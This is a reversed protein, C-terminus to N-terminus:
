VTPAARTSTLNGNSPMAQLALGWGVWSAAPLGVLFSHFMSASASLYLGGCSGRVDERQISSALHPSLPAFISCRTDGGRLRGDGELFVENDGENWATAHGEAAAGTAEATHSAGLDEDLNGVARARNRRRRRRRCRPLCPRRSTRGDLLQPNHLKSAAFYSAVELVYRMHAKQENPLTPSSPSSALMSVCM